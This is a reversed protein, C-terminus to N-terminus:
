RIYSLPNARKGNIYVEYHIHTGTSRGTTGVMAIVQGKKVEDGSKVFMKSAHAYRTMVGNDGSVVIQMGYGGSNWGATTVKGDHSAYIPSTYDGDIDVGTHKWGYYQTVVHGSTPWLLKASPSTTVDADPPKRTNSSPSPENTRIPGTNRVVIAAAPPQGGPLTLELGTSLTEDPALRNVRVIEEVDSGYKKALSLLTDGKKVTVLVGSVPPIKLSDGPRLYQFETRSNAWLITGVNVGFRHAIASLTDGSQVVYTELNTRPVTSTGPEDPTHTEPGAVITGPVSIATLPADASEDYDFDIDPLAQLSSAGVYRSDKVLVDPNFEQETMRTEDGTVMAYLLSQRGVDQANAQRVTLNVAVTAVAVGTVVVHLLYRNTFLMLVIGRAPLMLRHTRLKLNMALRYGPLLLIRAVSRGILAATRALAPWVAAALWSLGRLLSLVLRTLAAQIPNPQGTM